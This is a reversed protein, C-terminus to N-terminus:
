AVRGDHISETLDSVLMLGAGVKDAKFEAVLKPLAMVLAIGEDMDDFGVGDKAAEVAALLKEVFDKTVQKNAM